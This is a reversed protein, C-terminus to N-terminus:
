ATRFQDLMRELWQYAMNEGDQNELAFIQAHILINDQRILIHTFLASEYVRLEDVSHEPAELDTLGDKHLTYNYYDNLLGQAFWEGCTEHYQVTLFGDVSQGDAATVAAYEDWECNFGSVATSWVRVTNDDKTYANENPSYTGEPLLDSITVYPIRGTYESLPVPASTNLLGGFSSIIVAALLLYPLLTNVKHFLSAHKWDKRGSITAGQRLQHQYRLVQWLSCVWYLLFWSFFLVYSIPFWPGLTVANRFLYSFPMSRLLNLVALYTVMYITRFLFFRKVADMSIAQVEVDTHLPRADPDTARYIHFREFRCVFEWGFQGHLELVERQPKESAEEYWAAHIDPELRYLARRPTVRVFEVRRLFPHFKTIQWGDAAMDELWTQIADIDYSPCPCIRHIRDKM